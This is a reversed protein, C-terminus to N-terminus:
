CLEVIDEDVLEYNKSKSYINVITPSMICVRYYVLLVHRICIGLLQKNNLPM